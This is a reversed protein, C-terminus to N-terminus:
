ASAEVRVATSNRRVRYEAIMQEIGAELTIEPQFGLAAIRSVDLCKRPMGDPKSPDWAIEGRYGVAAAIKEALERISVDFGSGVNILEPTERAEMLLLVGRVLDDVHLFERRASGTGWLTISASGAIEAEVFRRVLATLVHSNVPDFCDNPGYLNCPMPCVGRLGHQRHYAQMMKLGSIKALAYAENSPELPGTLLYEEKMPQPCDRPYICSTGLLCLKEVGHRAAAQIVNCQMMLNDYFFDAPANLNAQIGGVKAAALYVVQPREAAFFAEVQDTCRLDLDQKARTIIPGQGRASLARLLASGVLGRHGAIYIRQSM